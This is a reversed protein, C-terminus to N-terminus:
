IAGNRKRDISTRSELGGVVEVLLCSLGTRGKRAM